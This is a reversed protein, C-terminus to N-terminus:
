IGGLKEILYNTMLEDERKNYIYGLHDSVSSAIMRFLNCSAFIANCLSKYDADSYTQVYMDYINPPLYKNFYKGWMGASVSFDNHIGIYWEAMTELDKHVVRMYMNIAYTLEDRLIGKAVNQLCWWFNNCVSLFQQEDPKKVHYDVDSPTPIKPLMKDKDLLVITLKDEGFDKHSIKIRLDIRNHDKFLMLWCYSRSIDLGKDFAIDNKDPEQVIIAEGFVSIWDNNELFWKIDSVVYVIDYDQYIDETINPNARSGNMYAAQIRENQNAVNIILDTMEKKGRM